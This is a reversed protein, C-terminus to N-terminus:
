SSESFCFNKKPNKVTNQPSRSPGSQNLGGMSELFMWSGQGILTLTRELYLGKM